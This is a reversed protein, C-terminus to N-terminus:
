NDKFNRSLTLVLISSSFSSQSKTFLCDIIFNKSDKEFIILPKVGSNFYNNHTLNPMLCYYDNPMSEFNFIVTDGFVRPRVYNKEDLIDIKSLQDVCITSVVFKFKDPNHPDKKDFKIAVIHETTSTLLPYYRFNAKAPKSSEFLVM